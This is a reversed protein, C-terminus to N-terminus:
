SVCAKKGAAAAERYARWYRAAMAQINYGAARTWARRGMEERLDRNDILSRLAERLAHADHPPVLLGADGWIERLSPLDSIVLACGSYAAELISLGFPEYLAPFAYIAARAYWGALEPMGVHGLAYCGSFAAGGSEGAVYVPWSLDDAVQALAAINKAEDWLRGAAFVFQEKSAAHFQAGDRGNPIVRCRSTGYHRALSRAMSCSPATVLDASVLAQAAEARYRAWVGPLPEPRVAEWWSLVCSHATLVVPTRWPLAGHGFSNLHVIDPSYERELRLLWKGSAEVDDWPDDMWELRYESDLLCLGPVSAAQTKQAATARAGMTALVVEVERSALARALDLTFTWVGGVTDGTM